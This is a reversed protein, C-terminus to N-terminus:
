AVRRAPNPEEARGVFAAPVIFTKCIVFDILQWRVAPQILVEAELAKRNCRHLYVLGVLFWAAPFQRWCCLRFVALEGLYADADFMHHTTDFPAADDFILQAQPPFVDM